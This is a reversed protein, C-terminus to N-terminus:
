GVQATASDPSQLAWWHPLLKQIRSEAFRDDILMVVGRDERTRIVRGAAQVVKQLGPIVSLHLRLRLRFDGGHATEDTRQGPQAAALGLTAIFAGILRAGPLDIGEGFAGGLVAFGVGPWAATFQDLFEQRSPRLWARSQQWLTIQPHV